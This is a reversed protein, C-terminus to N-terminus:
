ATRRQIPWQTNVTESKGQKTFYDQLSLQQEKYWEQQAPYLDHIPGGSLEPYKDWLAKAVLVAALADDASTHANELSVGLREAQATLKRSGSRYRDLKKDIVLPDILLEPIESNDFFADFGSYGLHRQIEENLISFDYSANYAVVPVFETLFYSLIGAVEYLATKPQEGHTQAHETSIGHVATAEAPIDIGPNILWEYSQIIEGLSDVYVISATVIRDEFVDIGTTELDFGVCHRLTTM